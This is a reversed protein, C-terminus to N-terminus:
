EEMRGQRTEDVLEEPGDRLDKENLLLEIDPHTPCHPEILWPPKDSM